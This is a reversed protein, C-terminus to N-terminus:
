STDNSGVAVMAASLNSGGYIDFTATILSGAIFGAQVRNNSDDVDTQFTFTENPNFDPRSSDELSAFNRIVQM